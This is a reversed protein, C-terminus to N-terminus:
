TCMMFTIFSGNVMMQLELAAEQIRERDSSDVVFILGVTDPYSEYHHRWLPRIAKQGGVDWVCFSINKHEVTEVNFGNTPITATAEGLKLNYLVTTKGSSDLGVMLLRMQRKGPGSSFLASLTLGM